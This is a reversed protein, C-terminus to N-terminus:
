KLSNIVQKFNSMIIQQVEKASVKWVKSLYFIVEDVEGPNLPKHDNEIFPGDTETLINGRPIKAIIKQGSASKIMAPNISFYYGEKVIEKILNLEGSYWHFIASKIKYKILNKLVESAAKRSHISLIKKQGSVLKLIREFSQIQVEKTGICDKSFDLGIEGIYSTKSVNRLFCPFEKIHLDAYLPHMGLSIRVYKKSKFFPSGMEFHSPLNTMSLVIMKKVECQELTLKPDKYLDIHCHTDLM